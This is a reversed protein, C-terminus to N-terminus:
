KEFYEKLNEYLDSTSIIWNNENEREGIYRFKHKSSFAKGELSDLNEIGIFNIDFIKAENVFFKLLSTGNGIRKKKFGFGAIVLTNKPWWTNDLPKFRLFLEFNKNYASINSKGSPRAPFDKCSYRKRLYGNLKFCFKQIQNEM